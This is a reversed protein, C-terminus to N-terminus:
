RCSSISDSCFSSLSSSSTGDGTKVNVRRWEGSVATGDVDADVPVMRVTLVHVEVASDTTSTLSTFHSLRSEPQAFESAAITQSVASQLADYRSESLMSITSLPVVKSAM